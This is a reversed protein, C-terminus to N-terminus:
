VLLLWIVLAGAVLMLPTVLIGVKFYDLGSVEINRQRLILLWLVTALSGVTTLNPGLDCGFITATLFGQQIALPTHQIGHLSSTMVVAMPVNNILNTGLASGMTGIMVAGFSTGGSLRLLLQGFQATLGTTELAQIVLFMGVIFGFIPWSIQRATSWLTTQKWYLAGLLLLLAGSVAVLSLPFQLAAAIVYAAAVLIVVICTYRFYIPHKVTELLAPLRKIDFRGHLQRRYLFYFVGANIGIVLLSPLFLFRLFTLLNLPYQSTVLINIPNSVPLLFSASDAIFTCAFLYPLVPLRLRTVLSYVIPTLILATADNSLLMSILSGLLFTNFFLRRSSSGSLRAAQVALWDFLGATEALAALSMMGLFFFFTNWDHLLTALAEGPSLLGLLLLLGAGTLATIAESVKWPRLMIGLLTLLTILSILGTRTLAPIHFFLFM